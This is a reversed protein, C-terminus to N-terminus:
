RITKRGMFSALAISLLAKGQETDVGYKSKGWRVRATANCSQAPDFDGRVSISFTNDEVMVATVYPYNHPAQTQTVNIAASVNAYDHFSQKLQPSIMGAGAFCVLAALTARRGVM